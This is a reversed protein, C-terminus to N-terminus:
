EFVSDATDHSHSVCATDLTLKFFELGNKVCKSEFCVHPQTWMGGLGTYLLNELTVAM